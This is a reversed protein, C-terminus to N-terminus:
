KTRRCTATMMTMLQGDPGEMQGTLVILDQSRFEWTDRAKVLKGPEAPSPGESNLVLKNGDVVGEYHWLFESMSDAWTGVYKKKNQSDYGFTGQGHYPMGLMDGKVVVVAWFDGLTHGTMSSKLKTPPKGPELFAEVDCDWEGVFQKLFEHEQAAPPPEPREDQAVAFGAGILIALGCGMFSRAM